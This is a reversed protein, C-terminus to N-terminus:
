IVMAGTGYSPARYKRATSLIAARVEDPPRYTISQGSPYSESEVGDSKIRQLRSRCLRVIADRIEGPVEDYGYTWEVDVRAPWELLDADDLLVIHTERVVVDNELDLDEEGLTDISEVDVVPRSPLRLDSGVVHSDAFLTASTEREEFSTGAYDTSEIRDTEDALIQKLLDEFSDDTSDLFPEFAEARFGVERRLEDVTLYREADDAAM